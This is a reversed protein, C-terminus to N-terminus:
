YVLDDAHFRESRMGGPGGALRTQFVVNSVTPQDPWSRTCHLDTELRESVTEEPLNYANSVADVLEAFVGERGLAEVLPTAEGRDDVATVPVIDDPVDTERVSVTVAIEFREFGTESVNVFLVREDDCAPELEYRDGNRVTAIAAAIDSNEDPM